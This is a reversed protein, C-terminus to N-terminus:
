RVTRVPVSGAIAGWESAGPATDAAGGGKFVTSIVEARDQGFCGPDSYASRPDGFYSFAAM